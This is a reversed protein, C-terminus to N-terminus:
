LAATTGNSGAAGEWTRYFYQFLARGLVQVSDTGPIRENRIRAVEAIRGELSHRRSDFVMFYESAGTQIREQFWPCKVVRRISDRWINPEDNTAGIRVPSGILHVADRFYKPSVLLTDPQTSIPSGDADLLETVGSIDLLADLSKESFKSTILNSYSAAVGEHTHATDFLPQGDLCTLLTGSFSDLLLTGAAKNQSRLASKAFLMMREKLHPFLHQEPNAYEMFIDTVTFSKRWIQLEFTQDVPPALEEIPYPDTEGGPTFTGDRQQSTFEHFFSDTTQVNFVQAIWAIDPDNLTIEGISEWLIEHLKPKVREMYAELTTPMTPM